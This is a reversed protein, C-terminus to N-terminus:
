GHLPRPMRESYEHVMDLLMLLWSVMKLAVDLKQLLGCELDM